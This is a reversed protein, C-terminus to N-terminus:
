LEENHLFAAMDPVRVNLQAVAIRHYKATSFKKRTAQTAVEREARLYSNVVAAICRQLAEETFRYQTYYELEPTWPSAVYTNLAVSVAAAAIQSPLFQVFDYDFLTLETLYQPLYIDSDIFFPSPSPSTSLSSCFSPSVNSLMVINSLQAQNQIHAAAARQFRRLFTKETPAALNYELAKLIKMEM